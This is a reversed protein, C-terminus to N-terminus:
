SFRWVLHCILAFELVLFLILVVIAELCMFHFGVAIYCKFDWIGGLPLVYKEIYRVIRRSENRRIETSAFTLYIQCQLSIIWGRTEFIHAPPAYFWHVILGQGCRWIQCIVAAEHFLIDFNSYFEFEQNGNSFMQNDAKERKEWM